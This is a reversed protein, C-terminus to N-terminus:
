RRGLEVCMMRKDDRLILRTGSFAFPAYADKGAFLRAKAMVKFGSADARAMTLTADDDLILFRDGVAMFPGMGFRTEKGSSWLIRGDPDACVFQNRNAGADKPLVGFLKGGFVFPTHQECALGDKPTFKRIARVTFGEQGQGVQFVMSGGGYGATVFMKGDPMVVPAPAIVAPTWETTQWLIKGRDATEASVGAMGNIAAYVYMRKGNIVAPAISSHSMLWAGPTPTTWLRKGTACDVGLMFVNTGCPALVATEGDLLPCQGTYWDPIKTGFEEAMDLGWLLKGTETEVCMVHGRPGVTVAFRDSVAPVTRSMGHNRKVRLRYGREWILKGDDLSLCKLVDAQRTEDYDLVFVRGGLVAAGAYGEGLEISWLVPPGSAEWTEALPGSPKAHNSFDAGRFCPWPTSVVGATGSGRNFLDGIRVKEAKAALGPPRGDMGPVSEALDVAPNRAFWVILVVAGAVGLVAGVALSWKLSRVM